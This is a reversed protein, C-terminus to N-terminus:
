YEEGLTVVIGFDRVMTFNQRAKFKIYIQM